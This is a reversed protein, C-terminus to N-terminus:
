QTGMSGAVMSAQYWVYIARELNPVTLPVDLVAGEVPDETM